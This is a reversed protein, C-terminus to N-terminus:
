DGGAAINFFRGGGAAVKPTSFFPFGVAINFFGGGAAINFSGGEFSVLNGAAVIFFRADVCFFGSM